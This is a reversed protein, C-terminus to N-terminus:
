FISANLVSLLIMGFLLVSIVAGLLGLAQGSRLYGEAPNWPRYRQRLIASAHIWAIVGMALGLVPIFSLLGFAFCRLSRNIVQPQDM